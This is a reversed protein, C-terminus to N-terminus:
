LATYPTTPGEVDYLRRLSVARLARITTRNGADQNPDQRAQYSQPQLPSRLTLCTTWVLICARRLNPHSPPSTPFNFLFLFSSFFFLFFRCRCISFVTCMADRPPTQQRDARMTEENCLVGNTVLLMARGYLAICVSGSSGLVVRHQPFSHDSTRPRGTRCCNSMPHEMPGQAGRRSLRTQPLCWAHDRHWVPRRAQRAIVSWWLCCVVPRQIVVLQM